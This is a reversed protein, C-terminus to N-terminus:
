SREDIMMTAVRRGMRVSYNTGRDEPYIQTTNALYLGPIPTRHAPINTAYGSTVVPQAAEERHYHAELIWSESFEPNIRKLHPLYEQLLKDGDYSYLRDDKDLYNALYVITKGGYHVPDILNTHEIVGLFPVSRDGVYLWYTSSLPRDLVLVSLVAALYTASNLKSLYDDPIRPVLKPFIFSPVTALIMDYDHRVPGHEGQEKVLIGSARGNEVLVEQVESGVSVRGGSALIISQLKEFIEGFSGVPYGLQERLFGRFGEGRSATRLAFKNWLWAM